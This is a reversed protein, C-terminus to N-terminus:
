YGWEAKLDVNVYPDDQIVGTEGQLQLIESLRYELLLQREPTELVELEDAPAGQGGIRERYRVFVGPGLYKGVRVAQEQGEV